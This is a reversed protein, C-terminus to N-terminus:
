ESVRYVGPLLNELTATGDPGTRLEDVSHGDAAEVLFVAGEVPAGTDADRKVVTLSPRRHNELIITSTRGAFLEVHHEAPDIIHDSVTDLERVSYMGPELGSIRIEGQENTTRDLYHSGDEVRAIRFTVGALRSGDSSLKVLHLSPRVSNTFVFQADENPDLHIIRQAEDILYGPCELETVVVAGTPLKSLDITGDELTTLEQSWSGDVAEFHFKANAIPKSLDASDVKVLHIGPKLDNFFVLSRVGDGAELEVEQPVANVLHDADTATEVVRWTGPPLSNLYICGSEDTTFTGYLATDHYVQFVAGSLPQGSVRDYKRIELGPKRRNTVTLEYTRTGSGAPDVHISHPTPDLVYSGECSVEVFQYLGEDLGSLTYQGEVRITDIHQEDRYVDFVATTLAGTDADRKELRLVAAPDNEFTLEMSRQGDFYVTQVQGSPLYGPPPSVESIRYSGPYLGEVAAQGDPDTTVTNTYGQDIGEIQFVAGALPQGTTSDRKAITLVAAEPEEPEQVPEDDVVVVRSENYNFFNQRGSVSSSALVAWQSAPDAEVRARIGQAAYDAVQRQLRADEAAKVELLQTYMEKYQEYTVPDAYGGDDIRGGDSTDGHGKYSMNDWVYTQVCMMAAGLAADDLTYHQNIYSMLWKVNELVEGSYDSMGSLTVARELLDEADAGIAHTWRYSALFQPSESNYSYGFDVCYAWKGDVLPPKYTYSGGSKSTRKIWHNPNTTHSIGTGATSAALAAGTLLALLAAATLLLAILRKKM